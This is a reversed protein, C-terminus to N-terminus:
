GKWYITRHIAYTYWFICLHTYFPLPVDNNNLDNYQSIIAEQCPPAVTAALLVTFCSIIEPVMDAGVGGLVGVQLNSLWLPVM